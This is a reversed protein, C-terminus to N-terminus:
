QASVGYRALQLHGNRGPPPGIDRGRLEIWAHAAPTAAHEPLGIVLEAPQGRRRLLRFLVLASVLCTPRRKGWRLRRDVATSLDAPRASAVRRGSVSELREVLEPLPIRHVARRVRAYSSWIEITLPVALSPRSDAATEFV